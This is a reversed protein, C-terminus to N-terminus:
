EKKQEIVRKRYREGRRGRTRFNYGRGRRANGRFFQHRLASSSSAKSALWKEANSDFNWFKNEKFEAEIISKKIHEPTSKPILMTRLHKLSLIFSNLNYMVPQILNEFTFKLEVEDSKVKLFQAQAYTILARTNVKERNIRILSYKIKEKDSYSPRILPHSVTFKNNLFWFISNLEEDETIVNFSQKTYVKLANKFYGVLENHLCLEIKNDPLRQVSGFREKTLDDIPDTFGIEPVTKLRKNNRPLAETELDEDNSSPYYVM